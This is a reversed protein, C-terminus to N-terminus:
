DHSAEYPGLVPPDQTCDLSCVPKRFYDRALHWPILSDSNVQRRWFVRLPPAFDIEWESPLIAVFTM